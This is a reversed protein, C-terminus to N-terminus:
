LAGPSGGFAQMVQRRKQRIVWEVSQLLAAKPAAYMGPLVAAEVLTREAYSGAMQAHGLMRRVQRVRQVLRQLVQSSWRSGLVSWLLAIRLPAPLQIATEGWAVADVLTTHKAFTTDRRVCRM